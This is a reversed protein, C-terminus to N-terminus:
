QELKQKLHQKYLPSIAPKVGKLLFIGTGCERSLPNTVKAMLKTSDVLPALDSVDCDDSVYIINHPHIDPPAWLAFSSNLCVAEPLHYLPGFHALAGAEGYNDAIITTQAQQAPTLGHYAKATKEAMEDWGFMDAYDQTLPHVKQDEWTVAFNFFSLNKHSFRFFALTTNIPFVPLLMPFLIFNPLTFFAITATRLAPGSSKLWREFGFGGAAFLMPYAGFLYYSKGNMALLFLFM